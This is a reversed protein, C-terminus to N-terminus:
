KWFEGSSYVPRKHMETEFFPERPGSLIEQMESEETLMSFGNRRLAKEADDISLFELQDFVASNDLLFFVTCRHDEHQHILAWNQQLFGVVKVWYETSNINVPRKEM